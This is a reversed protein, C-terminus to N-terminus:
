SCREQTGRYDQWFGVETLIDMELTDVSASTGEYNFRYILYLHIGSVDSTGFDLASSLTQTTTEVYGSDDIGAIYDSDEFLYNVSIENTNFKQWPTQFSSVQTLIETPKNDESLVFKSKLVIFIGRWTSNSSVWKTGNWTAATDGYDGGTFSPFNDALEPDDPIMSDWYTPDIVSSLAM